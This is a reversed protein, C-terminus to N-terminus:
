LCELLPLRAYDDGDDDRGYWSVPNGLVALSAVRAGQLQRPVDTAANTAWVQTKSTNLTLGVCTM